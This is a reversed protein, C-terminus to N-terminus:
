VSGLPLMDSRVGSAGVVAGGELASATTAALAREFVDALEVGRHSRDFSSVGSWDADQEHARGIAMATIAEALAQENGPDCVVARARADGLIEVSPNQTSCVAIIPKRIALYEYLKGPVQLDAGPGDSAALMLADSGAMYALSDAHSQQGLVRIVGSLAYSAALDELSKGEFTTPGILQVHIKGALEPVDQLVRRIAAFWVEPCRGGYFQGCHTLVFRDGAVERKPELGEFRRADFGNLITSCKGQLFPFRERYAATMRPTCCVVQTASRLVRRELWADWRRLSGYPISRFPNFSWPDRFDAVWPLGSRRSLARAVLHASMYPSTSYLVEPRQRRIEAMGARIAPAIWGIRSDPTMLLRSFWDRLSRSQTADLEPAPARSATAAARAQERSPLWSKVQEIWDTWPTRLIRTSAPVACELSEDLSEDRPDVTLVSADWGLRDLHNVFGLTRHTGSRNIPPFAYAVCLWRRRPSTSSVNGTRSM